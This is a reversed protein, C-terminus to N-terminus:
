PSRPPARRLKASSLPPPHAPLIPQLPSLDRRHNMSSTTVVIDFRQHRGNPQCFRRNLRFDDNKTIKCKNKKNSKHYSTLENGTIFPAFRPRYSLPTVKKNKDALDKRQSFPLYYRSPLPFAHPSPPM